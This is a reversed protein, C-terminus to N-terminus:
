RTAILLIGLAALVFGALSQVNFPERLIVIGLVAAFAIGGLRIVPTGLSLNVGRSFLFFLQGAFVGFALGTAVAWLVGSRSVVLSTRTWITWALAPVMATAAYILTGLAPSVRGSAQKTAFDAFGLTLMSAIFLVLTAFSM